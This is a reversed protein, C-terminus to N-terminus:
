ATGRALLAEERAEHAALDACLGAFGDLVEGRRAVPDGGAVSAHLGDVTGRFRDHDTVLAALEAGMEPHLGHLAPFQVQEEITFHADLSGGFARLARRMADGDGSQLALQTTSELADLYAHQAAIRRAEHALRM